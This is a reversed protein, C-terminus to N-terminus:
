YQIYILPFNKDLDDGVRDDYLIYRDIYILGINVNFLIQVFAAWDLDKRFYIIYDKDNRDSIVEKRLRVADKEGCSSKFINILIHIIASLVYGYFSLIEIIFWTNIGTLKSEPPSNM